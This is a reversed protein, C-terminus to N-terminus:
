SRPWVRWRYDANGRRGRGRGPVDAGAEAVWTWLVGELVGMNWRKSFSTCGYGSASGGGGGRCNKAKRHSHELPTRGYRASIVSKVAAIPANSANSNLMIAWTSSKSPLVVGAWSQCCCACVSVSSATTSPALMTKTAKCARNLYWPTNLLKGIRSRQFKWRRISSCLM